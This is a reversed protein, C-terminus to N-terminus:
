RGSAWHVAAAIQQQFRRDTWTTSFHGLANYYVRGSGYTSTWALPYDGSEDAKASAGALGRRLEFLTPPGVSAADLRLLVHVRPRPNERFTYFEEEISFRAGLMSTTPHTTDEVIVAAERTWPHERFSAGVLAVYEPWDYLTDTASHVGLFGGGRSVFSLIAAKQDATFPLEGSTLAFFLVDANSLTAATVGSVDDITNVTFAESSAALSPMVQRATAISDHRFGATATLMLVRVPTGGTGPPANPNTAKSSSCGAVAVVLVVLAPFVRM